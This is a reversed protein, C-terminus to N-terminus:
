PTVDFGDVVVITNTSVADKTGLVRIEITHSGTALASSEWVRYRWGLVGYQSVTGKRVGDIYVDARGYNLARPGIWAVKTGTFAYRIKAGAWRSYRYTSDTYSTNACTVWAGSFTGASESVRASMCSPDANEVVFAEFERPFQFFPTLEGRGNGLQVYGTLRVTDELMHKEVANLKM